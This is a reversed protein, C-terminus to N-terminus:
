RPDAKMFRPTYNRIVGVKRSLETVLVSRGAVIPELEDLGELATPANAVIRIMNALAGVRRSFVGLLPQAPASITERNLIQHRAM